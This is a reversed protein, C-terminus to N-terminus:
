EGQREAGKKPLIMGLMSDHSAVPVKAVDYREEPLEFNRETM